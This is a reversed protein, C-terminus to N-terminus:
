EGAMNDFGQLYTWCIAINHLQVILSLAHGSPQSLVGSVTSSSGDPSDFCFRSSEDESDEYVAQERNHPM